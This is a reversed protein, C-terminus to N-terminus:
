LTRLATKTEEETSMKNTSLQQVVERPIVITSSM